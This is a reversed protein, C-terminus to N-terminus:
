DREGQVRIGQSEFFRTLQSRRDGQIIISEENISGGTGLTKKIFQLTEAKKDEPIDKVITVVKAGSRKEYGLTVKKIEKGAEDLEPLSDFDETTGEIGAKAFLDRFPFDSNM